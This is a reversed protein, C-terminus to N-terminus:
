LLLGGLVLLSVAMGGAIALAVLIAEVLRFLGTMIDGYLMDRISNVMVLGPIFLMIDGIMVKDVHQGIGLRVLLIALVGALMTMVVTHVLQNTSKKRTYRNAAFVFLSILAAALGDSLSGGFYIAFSGTAIFYGFCSLWGINKDKSFIEKKKREIEEMTPQNSCVYRSLANFLELQYLNTTLSHTRKTRTVAHGEEDVASVLSLFNISFVEVKQVGYSRCIRAITDEVRNVAAGCELMNEGIDLAISLVDEVKM